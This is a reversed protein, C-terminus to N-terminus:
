RWVLMFMIARLLDKGGGRTCPCVKGGRCRSVGLARWLYTQVPLRGRPDDSHSGGRLLRTGDFM